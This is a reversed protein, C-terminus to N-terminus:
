PAPEVLAVNPEVHDLDGVDTIEWTVARVEYLSGQFRFHEAARPIAELSLGGVFDLDVYLKVRMQHNRRAESHSRRDNEIGEARAECGTSAQSAM